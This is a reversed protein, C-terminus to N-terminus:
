FHGKNLCKAMWMPTEFLPHLCGFPHKIVGTEKCKGVFTGKAGWPIMSHCIRNLANMLMKATQGAQALSLSDCRPCRDGYFGTRARVLSWVLAIASTQVKQFFHGIGGGKDAIM